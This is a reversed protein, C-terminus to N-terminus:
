CDANNKEELAKVAKELVMAIDEGIALSKDKIEDPVLADKPNITVYSAKPLKYTLNWFPEKIFMPTMMGVGLELFLIKKYMNDQLFGYYKRYAEKYATGELFVFSRVWPEMDGGCKPCVPIMETPVTTGDTNEYLKEYIETAPYIEDHCRDNCQLYRFDGQIASVKEEPFIRSFMSDQNTTVVFYNKNEILKKLNMYPETIPFDMNGKAFAALFAWREERTKFNYYYGDFANTMGYKEAFAGLCDYFREDTAYLNYGAASSMGAAGGVVVADAEEIMKLLTEISNDINLM